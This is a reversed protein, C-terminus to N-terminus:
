KLNIVCIDEIINMKMNSMLMRGKYKVDIVVINGAIDVRSLFHLFHLLQAGSDFNAFIFPLTTNFPPIRFSLKEGSLPVTVNNSIKSAMM